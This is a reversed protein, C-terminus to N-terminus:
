RGRLENEWLFYELSGEQFTDLKTYKGALLLDDAVKIVYDKYKEEGTVQYIDDLFLAQGM